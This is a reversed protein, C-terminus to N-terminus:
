SNLQSKLEIIEKDKAKVELRSQFLYSLLYLLVFFSSLDYLWFKKILEYDEILNFRKPIYSAIFCLIFIYRLSKWFKIWNM